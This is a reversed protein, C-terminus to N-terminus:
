SIYRSIILAPCYPWFNYTNILCIEKVEKKHLVGDRGRSRGVRWDMFRVWILVCVSQRLYWVTWHLDGRGGGASSVPIYKSFLAWCLLFSFLFSTIWPCIICSHFLGSLPSWWFLKCSVTTSLTKSRFRTMLDSVTLSSLFACFQRRM